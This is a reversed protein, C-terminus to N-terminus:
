GCKHIAASRIVNRVTRSILTKAGSNMSHQSNHLNIESQLQSTIAPGQTTSILWRAAAARSREEIRLQVSQEKSAERSLDGETPLV